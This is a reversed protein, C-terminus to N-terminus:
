FVFPSVVPIASRRRIFYPRLSSSLPIAHSRHRTIRRTISSTHHTQTVIHQNLQNPRVNDNGALPVGVQQSIQRLLSLFKAVASTNHSAPTHTQVHSAFAHHSSPAHMCACLLPNMKCNTAQYRCGCTMMSDRRKMDETWMADTARTWCV